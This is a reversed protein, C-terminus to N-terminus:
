SGSGADDLLEDGNGIDDDDDDRTSVVGPGVRFLLGTLDREVGTFGIAEVGTVGSADTETSLSDFPRDLGFFRFVDGADDGKFASLLLCGGLPHSSM